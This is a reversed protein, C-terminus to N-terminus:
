SDTPRPERLTLSVRHEIQRTPAIWVLGSCRGPFRIRSFPHTRFSCRMSLAPDIDSIRLHHPTGESRQNTKRTSEWPKCGPSTHSAGEPCLSPFSTNLKGQQPPFLKLDPSHFPSRRCFVVFFYHNDTTKRSGLLDSLTPNQSGGIENRNRKKNTIEEILEVAVDHGVSDKEPKARIQARVFSSGKLRPETRQQVNRARSPREDAPWRGSRFAFDNIVAVIPRQFEIKRTKSLLINVLRM